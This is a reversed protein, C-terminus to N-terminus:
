GGVLSVVILMFFRLVDFNLGETRIIYFLAHFFVFLKMSINVLFWYQLSLFHSLNEKCIALCFIPSYEDMDSVCYGTRNCHHSGPKRFINCKFCYVINKQRFGYLKKQMIRLMPITITGPPKENLYTLLHYDYNLYTADSSSHFFKTFTDVDEQKKKSIEMILDKDTDEEITLNPALRPVTSFM